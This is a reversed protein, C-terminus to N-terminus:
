ETTKAGDENGDEDKQIFRKVINEDIWPTTGLALGIRLPVAFRAFNVFAFAEAGLKKQDEPDSLDPWHGTVSYYGFVCVPVSITWFGFEWLAYSIVGALGADKVQKMLKKTESMEEEDEEKKEEVGSADTTTTTTLVSSSTTSETSSQEPTVESNKELSSLYSSQGGATSAPQKEQEVESETEVKEVTEQKEGRGFRPLWGNLNTADKKRVQSRSQESIIRVQQQMGGGPVVFANVTAGGVFVFVLAFILSESVVKM